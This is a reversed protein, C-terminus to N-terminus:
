KARTKINPKKAVAKKAVAKVCGDWAPNKMKTGSFIRMLKRQEAFMRKKQAEKKHDHGVLHLVGHVILFCIEKDLQHKSTKANAAADDTSIVIDGLPLPNLVPRTLPPNDQFKLARKWKYQPFALVDTSQKKNRYQANLAEMAKPSVFQVCVEYHAVRLRRCIEAALATVQKRNVKYSRYNNMVHVSATSNLPM